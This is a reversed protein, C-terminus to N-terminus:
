VVIATICVLVLIRASWCRFGNNQKFSSLSLFLLIIDLFWYFAIRFRFTGMLHRATCQSTVINRSRRSQTQNQFQSHPMHHRHCPHRGSMRGPRRRTMLSSPTGVASVRYSLTVETDTEGTTDFIVSNPARAGLARGVDSLFTHFHHSWRTVFPSSSILDWDLGSVKFM